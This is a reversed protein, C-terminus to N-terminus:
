LRSAYMYSQAGGEVDMDVSDGKPRAWLLSLESWSVEM